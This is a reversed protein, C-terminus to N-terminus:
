GSDGPTITLTMPKRRRVIKVAVPKGPPWKSLLRHIDDVSNVESDELGYMLDGPALGARVAPGGAEVSAVEVISPFKLALRHQISRSVPVSAAAIGLYARTVRGRAIIEGAVWKATNSPVAFSIGQATQIMATNIGIVRGLSDALPGGSNGPNLAVDTQIINDILRGSRGRLSRGLASIVGASVTSQFGFPNGIAVALQGVRLRDSDAFVAFPLRAADAKIVALDTAPDTGVVRVPYTEGDTLTVMLEGSNEVVHNNTLVFGDPAIIVGSGAGERGWPTYGNQRVRVAAVVPGVQDAVKIVTRSYADLPDADSTNEKERPVSNSGNADDGDLFKIISEDNM